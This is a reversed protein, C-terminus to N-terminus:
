LYILRRMFLHDPLENHSPTLSKLVASVDFDCDQCIQRAERCELFCMLVRAIKQLDLHRSQAEFGKINQCQMMCEHSKKPHAPMEEILAPILTGVLVNYM